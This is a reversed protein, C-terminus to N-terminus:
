AGGGAAALAADDTRWRTGNLIGYITDSSVRYAKALGAATHDGTAHARRIEDALAFTLKASPSADGPTGGGKNRGKAFMDRANDVHTGAFLHAPNVCPPNDCRHCVCMGPPIPGNAIEWSIRHASVSKLAGDVWVSIIGYTRLPAKGMRGGQWEWCDADAGHRVKSWFRATDRENM